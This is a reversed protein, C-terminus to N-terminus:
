PRLLEFVSNHKSWLDILFVHNNNINLKSLSKKWKAKIPHFNSKATMGGALHPLPAGANATARVSIPVIVATTPDTAVSRPHTRPSSWPIVAIVRTATPVESGSVKALIVAAWVESYASEAM